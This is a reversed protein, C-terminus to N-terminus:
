SDTLVKKLPLGTTKALKLGVILALTKAYLVSLKSTLPKLLSAWVKNNIALIVVGLVVRRLLVYLSADIFLTLNHNEVEIQYEWSIERRTLVWKPEYSSKIEKYYMSLWIKIQHPTRQQQNHTLKNRETWLGWTTILM